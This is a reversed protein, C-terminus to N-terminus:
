DDESQSVLELPQPVAIPSPKATGQSKRSADVLQRVGAGISALLAAVLFWVQVAYLIRGSNQM